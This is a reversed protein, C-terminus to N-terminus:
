SYCFGLFALGGLVCTSAFAKLYNHRAHRNLYVGKKRRITDPRLAFKEKLETAQHEFNRFGV